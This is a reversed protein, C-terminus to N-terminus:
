KSLSMQLYSREERDKTKLGLKKAIPAIERSAAEIEVFWGEKALFDLCVHSRGLQYEERQKVYRAIINFASLKLIKKTAVPDAPIEMEFRKKYKSKLCPGKFTLWGKKGVSRLRLLCGRQSFFKNRDYLENYERGSRIKKARMQKLLLRIKRPNATRYKQEIEYFNM